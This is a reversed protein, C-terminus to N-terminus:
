LGVFLHHIYLIDIKLDSFKQLVKHKISILKSGNLKIIPDKITFINQIKIIKRNKNSLTLSFFNSKM